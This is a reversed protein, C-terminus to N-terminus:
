GFPDSWLGDEPYMEVYEFDFDTIGQQHLKEVPVGIGILKTIMAFSHEANFVQHEM